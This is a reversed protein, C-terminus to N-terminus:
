IVENVSNLLSTAKKLTAVTKDIDIIGNRSKRYEGDFICVTM